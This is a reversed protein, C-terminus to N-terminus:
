MWPRWTSSATRAKPDISGDFVITKNGGFPAGKVPWPFLTRDTLDAVAGGEFTAEIETFTLTGWNPVNLGTALWNEVFWNASMGDTPMGGPASINHTVAEPPHRSPNEFTVKGAIRSADQEVKVHIKDGALIDSVEYWQAPDPYMGKNLGDVTWSYYFGTQLLSTNLSFFGGIGVWVSAAYGESANYGYPFTVGPVTIHASVSEFLRKGDGAVAGSFISSEYWDGAEARKLPIGDSLENGRRSEVTLRASTADDVKSLVLSAVSAIQLPLLLYSRDLQM